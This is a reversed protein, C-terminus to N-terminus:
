ALHESTPVPARPAAATSQLPPGALREFVQRVLEPGSKDPPPESRGASWDLSQILPVWNLYRDQATGPECWAAATWVKAPLPLWEVSQPTPNSCNEAPSTVLYERCAMPRDPHISCSEDELFPCAIGQRFYELGIDPVQAEPWAQRTELRQWLGTSELRQRAAAFRSRIEAQRPEPMGAVLRAVHRAEVPSIPVLQRCCAGCGKRCSVARGQKQAEDEASAVVRDSLIQLLPVLDDLRTPGAPVTVSVNLQCNGIVAQVAVKASGTTPADSM